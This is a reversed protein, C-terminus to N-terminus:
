VTVVKSTGKVELHVQSTQVQKEEETKEVGKDLHASSLSSEAERTKYASKGMVFNFAGRLPNRAGEIKMLEELREREREEETKVLDFSTIPRDSIPIKKGEKRARKLAHVYGRRYIRVTPNHLLTYTVLWNFRAAVTSSRCVAIKTVTTGHEIDTRLTKMDIGDVPETLDTERRQRSLTALLRIFINVVPHTHAAEMHIFGQYAAFGPDFFEFKRPLTSNDLRALFLTGVGIAKLIRLLCSVLGLFINFFFMFYVFVFYFRRNDLRLHQGKDQLFIFKALLMQVIMLIIAILVTPWFQLVKEKLFDTINFMFLNVLAGVAFCVIAIIAFNVVFAWVFYAVQYGAFKMSGTCLSVAGMQEPAPITSFDGRYLAYLNTRFSSMMHLITFFSLTCALILAIILSYKITRAAYYAFLSGKRLLTTATDEGLVPTGVLLM